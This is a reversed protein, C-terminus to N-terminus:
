IYLEYESDTYVNILGCEFYDIKDKVQRYFESVMDDYGMLYSGDEDQNDEKFQEWLESFKEFSEKKNLYFISYEEYDYDDIIKVKNYNAAIEDYLSNIKELIDNKM